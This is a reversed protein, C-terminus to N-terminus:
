PTAEHPKARAFTGFRNWPHTASPTVLPRPRRTPRSRVVTRPRSDIPRYTLPRDQHLMRLSGDVREEVVIHTARVGSQIQYLQGGHMVTRDRRLVRRAKVALVARVDTSASLPRHLNTAHAPPVAFRRNYQTLWAPLFQNAEALTVIGALRMEKVLRDQLTHFLREIRGKAQPSHAPILEVGLERLARGFQSMPAVGALQEEVTPEAPSRYTTHKDAYVALPIGYQKIYRQFSDLAPMTGEYEYFRAFVRSSADDIYAMLVCRPSRGEFWDHHSGDLQVLAGCHARRARWSRHPRAHRRFHDIGQARLWRRLTEESLALGHHKALQEVALTPGFDGYHRTYLQLVQRKFAAPKRRNSPRGRGRHALGAEGEAQLRDRLRRIHRPTLGLAEGAQQHTLQKALVQRIVHIRRLESGKMIVSDERVM